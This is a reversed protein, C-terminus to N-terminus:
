PVSLIKVDWGQQEWIAEKQGPICSPTLGLSQLRSKDNLLLASM